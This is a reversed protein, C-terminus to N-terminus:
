VGKVYLLSKLAPELARYSFRFGLGEAHAPLARQGTLLMASMEGLVLRMAFAPAPLVAPRHLVRGLTRAFEGNTVPEPATANFAGTATGTEMLWVALQTWDDAHIWPLYQRGSGLPGGLGFRFPLLMPPLAGGDPSLALGTRVICVRTAPTEAARAEQEWEVCLRALFDSGPPTAETVPEDGHAGYYGVGSASVFVRPPNASSAIASAITRTALIRSTRIAHKRAATWPWRAIPEGALNVIVHVGDLHQPLAGPTGDPNWTIADPSSSSRRTLTQVHHGDARLRIALKQGLFGSGGAIVVRM